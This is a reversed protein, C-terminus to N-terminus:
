KIYKVGKHFGAVYGSPIKLWINGNEEIVDLCTVITGKKLVAQALPSNILVHNKGDYTLECVAKISYNTGAGTRVFMNDQLTYNKGKIYMQNNEQIEKDYKTLNWTNIIAMIKNVYQPDTAYGGNKIAEICELPSNTTLAKRYRESKCILDFYDRISEEISNYSRFCAVINYVKGDYVENTRSNYVKGNWNTTAKIGYIANAKMMLSSKGWGTELIAQAIAVSSFIPNGRKANESQIKEGILKIFEQNTM